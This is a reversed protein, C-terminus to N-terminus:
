LPREGWALVEIRELFEPGFRQEQVIPVRGEAYAACTASLRVKGSPTRWIGGQRVLVCRIHKVPCVRRMARAMAALVDKHGETQRIHTLSLEGMVCLLGEYRFVAVGRSHFLPCAQRVAQALDAPDYRQGDILVGNDLRGSVFLCGQQMFGLDRSRFWRRGDDGIIFRERNEVECNVYGPTVSPGSLWLEGVQGEPLCTESEPDVVLIAHGEIVRGCNAVARKDYATQPPAVRGEALAYRSVIEFSVVEKGDGEGSAIMLTTEAMGYGPRLVSKKLGLPMYRQFLREVTDQEIMEAGIFSWAWCSLDLGELATDPVRHALLEYAFNPGASFSLRYRDIAQVWREPKAIFHEPRMLWLAGGAGICYLVSVLGLDHSLPLWILGSEGAWLNGRLMLQQLNAGVNRHTIKVGRPHGTSGSTYQVYAIDDLAAAHRRHLPKAQEAGEIPIWKLGAARGDAQRRFGMLTERTGLVAVAGCDEVIEFLRDASGLMAPYVGSVPEMNAYLCGFFGAVSATGNEFCLVVRSREPMFRDVLGAIRCAWDHMQQFTASEEIEGEEDLLFFRVKDPNEVARFSLMEDLRNKDKNLVALTNEYFDVM